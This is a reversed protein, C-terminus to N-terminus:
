SGQSYVLYVVWAVLTLAVGINMGAWLWVTSPERLSGKVEVEDGEALRADRRRKGGESRGLIGNMKYHDLYIYIIGIFFDYVKLAMFFYLVNRYSCRRTSFTLASSAFRRM